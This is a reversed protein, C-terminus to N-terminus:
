RVKVQEIMPEGLAGSRRVNGNLFRMLDYVCYYVKGDDVGITQGWMFKQFAAWVKPLMAEELLSSEFGLPASPIERIAKEMTKFEPYTVYVVSPSREEIELEYNRAHVFQEVFDVYTEISAGFEDRRQQGYKMSLGIKDEGEHYYIEAVLDLEENTYHYVFGVVGIEVGYEMESTSPGEYWCLVSNHLPMLRANEETIIPM